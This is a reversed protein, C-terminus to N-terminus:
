GTRPEVAVSFPVGTSSTGTQSRGLFSYPVYHVVDSHRRTSERKM